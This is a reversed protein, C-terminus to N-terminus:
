ASHRINRSARYPADILFAIGCHRCMATGDELDEPLDVEGDCTDCLLMIGLYRLSSDM